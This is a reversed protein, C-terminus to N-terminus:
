KLYKYKNANHENLNKSFITQGTVPDSLFYSYNTAEPYVAAKIANFGPNAIPGPPLGLYKYTNYLSDIKTQEITHGGIKDGLIYSLSADSQLPMGYKIRDWFIGSVIKMDAPTRVEKEILSAMVVIEYITKKQRKIEEKIEPTLKKDFNALMKGIIGEVKTDNFIRYTDPFLYGELGAAGPADNLFDPKTFGFKWQSLPANALAMFDKVSIVKNKELYDGIDKNSWGEIIRISKEQSLAEGRTLIKIIERTSFKQSILYEGAKINDGSGIQYKFYNVSRILNEKQLNAAIQKVTEGKNVIFIQERGNADVPSNLNRWYLFGGILIVLIIIVSKKLM